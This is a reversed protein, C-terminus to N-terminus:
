DRAFGPHSTRMMLADRYGPLGRAPHSVPERSGMGIERETIFASSGGLQTMAVEFSLRTRLSPKHFILALTRQDLEHHRRGARLDAKLRAATAFLRDVDARTLDAFSVLDRKM